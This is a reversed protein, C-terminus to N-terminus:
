ATVQREIKLYHSTDGTISSATGGTWAGWNNQELCFPVSSGDDQGGMYLPNGIIGPKEPYIGNLTATLVYTDNDFTVRWVSGDQISIDGLDAIWMNGYPSGANVYLNDDLLTEWTVQPRTYWTVGDLQAIDVTKQGYTEPTYATIMTGLLADDYYVPISTNTNDTFELYITHQTVSPSGGSVNVVVSSYGDANDSAPNYTGNQTISKAILTTVDDASVVATTGTANPEDEIIIEGGGSATGATKTGDATYFYKGSAVDGAVATTDSIDVATITRVTGGAADATDVISIAGSGGGTIQAILDPLDDSTSGVPVTVGKAAVADLSDSVNQAIRNIESSISM